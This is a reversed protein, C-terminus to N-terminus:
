STQYDLSRMLRCGYSLVPTHWCSSSCWSSALLLAMKCRAPEPFWSLPVKHRLFQPCASFMDPLMGKVLMEFRARHAPPICYWSKPAGYHLYNVSHLDVDETHRCKAAQSRGQSHGCSSQVAKTCPSCVAVALQTAQSLSDLLSDLSAAAACAASHRSSRLLQGAELMCLLRVATDLSFMLQPM